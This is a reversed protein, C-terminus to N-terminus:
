VAGSGRTTWDRFHCCEPNTLFYIVLCAEKQASPTLLRLHLDRVSGRAIDVIEAVQQFSVEPDTRVFLVPEARLGYIETLREGLRAKTIPASNLRVSNENSVHVVILSSDGCCDEPSTSPPLHVLFGSSGSGAPLTAIVTLLLFLGAFGAM